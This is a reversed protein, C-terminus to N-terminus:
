QDALDNHFLWDCFFCMDMTTGPFKIGKKELKTRFTGLGEEHCLRIFSNSKAKKMLDNYDDKISGIILNENENAFGCCAAITGDSHVYFVNGPGACFDDKFWSGNEWAPEFAGSSYPINVINIHLIQSDYYDTATKDPHKNTICDSYGKKHIYDANLYKAISGFLEEPKTKDINDVTLIEVCDKCNWIDFVTKIFISLDEPNQGHWADASIGFTGDFGSEFLNKLVSELEKDDHFWCANTMLRDFLFDMKVAASSIKFLFDPEM